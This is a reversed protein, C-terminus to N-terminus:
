VWVEHASVLKFTSEWEQQMRGGERGGVREKRRRGERRGGEREAQQMRGGEERGRERGGERGGGERGGLTFHGDTCQLQPINQIRSVLHGLPVRLARLVLHALYLLMPSFM